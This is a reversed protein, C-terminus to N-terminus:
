DFDEMRGDCRNYNKCINVGDLDLKVNDNLKKNNYNNTLVMMQYKNKFKKKNQNKRYQKRFKYDFFCKKERVIKHNKVKACKLLIFNTGMQNDFNSLNDLIQPLTPQKTCQRKPSPAFKESYRAVTAWVRHLFLVFLFVHNM